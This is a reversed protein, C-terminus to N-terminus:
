ANTESLYKKVIRSVVNGDARGKIKPALWGMVKGFEKETKAGARESESVLRTAEIAEKALAEIEGESLQPPMYVSLIAIEKEEKEALEPRGGKKFQEAADRRKKAESSVVELIEDDSLGTEKKKKEIEKNKVAADLMRLVSLREAEGKKMAEKIDEKIKEKLM